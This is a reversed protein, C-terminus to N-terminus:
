WLSTENVKKAFQNVLLLLICNIVSNLLDVAASFSFNAQVLGVKYVYTSIVESAGLNTANQLLFVKEYGVSMLSGFRMILLIVITPVLVPFNIYRIRQLKNAGDIRAAELLEADVGALAAFYIISSWGTEQWIGSLIYIWKFAAPSQLYNAPPLGLATSLHSFVGSTPNLFLVLMGCLVVLSIFHPAFSVTQIFKKLRVQTIENLLLAFIIPVPFGVLLSLATIVLTNQVVIGFWYSNFFRIFHKLGVWPSAWIGQAGNFDRFAIQVGYMPLYKLVILYIVPLLVFTYLQWNAFVRKRLWKVGSSGAEALGITGTQKQETDMM